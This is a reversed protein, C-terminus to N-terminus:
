RNTTLLLRESDTSMVKEQAHALKKKEEIKINTVLPRWVGCGVQIM